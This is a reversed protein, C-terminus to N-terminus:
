AYAAVIPAAFCPTPWLPNSESVHDDDDDKIHMVETDDEDDSRIVLSKRRKLIGKGIYDEESHCELQNNDEPLELPTSTETSENSSKSNLNPSSSSSDTWKLLSKNSEKKKDSFNPGTIFINSWWQIM